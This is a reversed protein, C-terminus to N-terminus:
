RLTVLVKIVGTGQKLPELAKGVITGTRYVKVGRVLIPSAKMAYGPVSSTTLLDGVGVPGNMASVKTPVIGVIAVPVDDQDVRSTGNKDAGLMGPRTSYIGAVRPDYPQSSKEIKGPAKTSIVVVDGPEYSARDGSAPLAEAFDSGATYTGGNDIHFKRTGGGTTGSFGEVLNGSQSVAAVGTGTGSAGYTGFSKSSVGLVGASYTSTGYVSITNPSSSYVGYELPNTTTTEVDLKGNVPNTTGIGVNGGNAISMRSTFSTYFDLGFQNGGSTRKSSIGEGSGSGFTMGPNLVGNNVNAADAGLGASNSLGGNTILTGNATLNGNTTDMTLGWGAGGTGYLGVHTDDEMGVFAQDSSPTTQFLWLGASGSAGQRVRMRDAVDLRFGPSITGLGVNGSTDITLRSQANAVDFINFNGAGIGSGGGSSFLTWTRGNSATNRIRLGTDNGGSSYEAVGQNAGGGSSGVVTLPYSPTNTGLGINGNNTNMILGWGGAGVGYFGVHTDDLMGVFAQDAAPTTQYFWMGATNAANAGQRVRMRDAVDLKFGPTATGIGVNGGAFIASYNNLAGAQADVFLGYSNTTGAMGQNNIHLGFQNTPKLSGFAFPSNIAFATGNTVAGGTNGYVTVADGGYADTITVGSPPAFFAASVFGRALAISATPAFTPAIDLGTPGNGPGTFTNRAKFGTGFDANNTVAAKIEIVSDLASTLTQSGTTVIRGNLVDLAQTPTATGIGINGSLETVVSDGLGGGGDTWKTLKGTTGTGSVLPQVSNSSDTTLPNGDSSQGTVLKPKVVLFREARIAGAVDLKSKPESTGIGLNGDETLRMQEQDNGSFFDGIRFSLAGRGRIMQGDTGDNAIVTPTPPEDNGAITWSSNDEVPGITQAQPASLQKAEAPQVVASSEAVTVTGIKQTLKGSVSKATVVCVYNGPALRQAQGNQLHWDFVNGGRIEQDFLKEGSAAYVEVHMQVVSAPATIRVREGAASATITLSSTQVTPSTSEQAAATSLLACVLMAAFVTQKLNPM